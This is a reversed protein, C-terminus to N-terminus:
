YTYWQPREWGARTLTIKGGQRKLLGEEVLADVEWKSLGTFLTNAFVWGGNADMIKNYAKDFANIMQRLSLNHKVADAEERNEWTKVVDSTIPLDFDPATYPDDYQSASASEYPAPDTSIGYYDDINADTNAIQGAVQGQIEDPLMEEDLEMMEDPSPIDVVYREVDVVKKLANLAHFWMIYQEEFDVYQYLADHLDELHEVTNLLVEQEDEDEILDFVDNAVGILYDIDAAYFGGGNEIQTSINNFEDIFTMLPRAHINDQEGTEGPKGWNNLQKSWKANMPSEAFSIPKDAMYPATSTKIRPYRYPAADDSGGTAIERATRRWVRPTSANKYWKASM